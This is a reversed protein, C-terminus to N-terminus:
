WLRYENRKTQQFLTHNRFYCILYHWTDDVEETVDLDVTSNNM